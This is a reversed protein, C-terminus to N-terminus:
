FTQSKTVFNGPRGEVTGTSNGRWSQSTFLCVLFYFCIKFTNRDPNTGKHDSHLLLFVMMLFVNGNQQGTISCLWVKAPVEFGWMEGRWWNGNHGLINSDWMLFSPQPKKTTKKHIRVCVNVLVAESKLRRTPKQFGHCDATVPGFAINIVQYCPLIKRGIHCGCLTEHLVQRPQWSLPM